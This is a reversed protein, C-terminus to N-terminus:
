PSTQSSPRSPGLQCEDSSTNAQIMEIAAPKPTTNPLTNRIGAIVESTALKNTSSTASM